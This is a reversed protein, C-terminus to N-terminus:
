FPRIRCGFSQAQKNEYVGVWEGVWEVWRVCSWNTMFVMMECKRHNVIDFIVRESHLETSSRVFLKQFLHAVRTYAKDRKSYCTSVFAVEIWVTQGDSGVLVDTWWGNM